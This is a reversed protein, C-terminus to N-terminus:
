MMSVDGQCFGLVDLQYDMYFLMELFNDFFFRDYDILFNKGFNRNIAFFISCFLSRKQNFIFLYCFVFVKIM